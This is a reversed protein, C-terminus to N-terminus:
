LRQKRRLVTIIPKTFLQIQLRQCIHLNQLIIFVAVLKIPLFYRGELHYILLPLLNGFLIALQLLAIEYSRNMIRTISFLAFLFICLFIIGEALSVSAPIRSQPPYLWRGNLVWYDWFNPIREIMFSIPHNFIAQISLSQYDWNTDPAAYIKACVAKDIQCAWNDIGAVIEWGTGKFDSDRMWYWKWSNAASTVWQFQLNPIWTARFIMWISMLLIPVATLTTLIGVKVVTIEKGRSRFLVQAAKVILLIIVSAILLYIIALNISRMFVALSLAIGSIALHVPKNGELYKGMFYLSSFLGLITLGEAYMIGQDLLWGQTASSILLIAILTLGFIQFFKNLNQLFGILMYTLLATVLSAALSWILLPSSNTGLVKIILFNMLSMGPPWLEWIFNNSPDKFTGEALSLGGQMYSGADLGGLIKRAQEFGMERTVGYQGTRFAVECRTWSLFFVFISALIRSIEFRKNLLVM